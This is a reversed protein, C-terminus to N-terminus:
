QAENLEARGNALWPALRELYPERDGDLAVRLDGGEIRVKWHMAGALHGLELAAGSDRPTVTLWCQERARVVVARDERLLLVAGDFLEEDRRLAIVSDTGRDTTVRLRHRQMDEAALVIEEVVGAHRAEHLRRAIAEDAACGVIRTFSLRGGDSSDEHVVIV